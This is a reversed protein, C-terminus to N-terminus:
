ERTRGKRRNEDVKYKGGGAREKDKERLNEGRLKIAGKIAGEIQM